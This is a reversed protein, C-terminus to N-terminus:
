KSLRKRLEEEFNRIAQEEAPEIHKQGEVRGGGRKAHGHELLHALGPKKKNHITFGTSYRTKEETITWGDKYHKASGDRSKPSTIKLTEVAKKGAILASERLEISCEGAYEKIIEEIATNIGKSGVLKRAM